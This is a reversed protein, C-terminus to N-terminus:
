IVSFTQLTPIHLLPVSINMRAENPQEGSYQQYEQQGKQEMIECENEKLYNM